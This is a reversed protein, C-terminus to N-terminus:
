IGFNLINNDKKMVSVLIKALELNTILPVGFEVARRRILFGDTISQKKLKTHDPSPTNIVFKLQQNVLYDIINPKKNESVKYLRECEINNRILAEATHETAYIKFGNKSITKVMNLIRKKDGGVSILISDGSKPLRLGSAVLSKLLAEELTRGFCAV